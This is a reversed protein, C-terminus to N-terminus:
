RRRSICFLIDRASHLTSEDQGDVLKSICDQKDLCALKEGFISKVLDLADTVTTYTTVLESAMQPDAVYSGYLNTPM